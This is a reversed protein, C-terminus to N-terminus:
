SRAAAPSKCSHRHHLHNTLRPENSQRVGGLLRPAVRPAIYLVSAVRPKGPWCVCRCRTCGWPTARTGPGGSTSRKASPATGRARSTASCVTSSAPAARRLPPPLRTETLQPPYPITYHLFIYFKVKAGQFGRSPFAQARHTTVCLAQPYHLYTPLYPHPQNPEAHKGRWQPHVFSCRCHQQAPSYTHTCGLSFPVHAYRPASASASTCWCTPAARRRTTPWWTGRPSWGRAPPAAPCWRWCRHPRPGPPPACTWCRIKHQHIRRIHAM